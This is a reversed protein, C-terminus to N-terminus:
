WLYQKSLPFCRNTVSIKVSTSVTSIISLGGASGAFLGLSIGTLYSNFIFILVQVIKIYQM